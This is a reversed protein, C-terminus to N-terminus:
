DSINNTRNKKRCQLIFSTSPKEDDEDGVIDDDKM